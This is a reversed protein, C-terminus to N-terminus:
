TQSTQLLPYRPIYTLHSSADRSANAGSRIHEIQRYMQQRPITLDPHRM